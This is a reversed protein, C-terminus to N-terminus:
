FVLHCLFFTRGNGFQRADNGGGCRRLRNRFRYFFVVHGVNHADNDRARDRLDVAELGRVTLKKVGHIFHPKEVARACLTRIDDTLGHLEIRVTIGCNIFCHHTQRAAVRRQKM